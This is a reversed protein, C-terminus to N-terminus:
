VNNVYKPLWWMWQPCGNWLSKPLSQNSLIVRISTPFAYFFQVEMQTIEKLKPLLENTVWIPMKKGYFKTPFRQAKILNRRVALAEGNTIM